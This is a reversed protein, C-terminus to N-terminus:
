LGLGLSQLRGSKQHHIGLTLVFYCHTLSIDLSGRAGVLLRALCM